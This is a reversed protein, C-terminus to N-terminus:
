HDQHHNGMFIGSGVIQSSSIPVKQIHNLYVGRTSTFWAPILKTTNSNGLEVDYNTLYSRATIVFENLLMLMLYADMLTTWVSQCSRRKCCTIMMQWGCSMFPGTFYSSWTIIIWSSWVEWFRNLYVGRTPTFWAVILKTTNSLSLRQTLMGQGIQTPWASQCMLLVTWPINELYYLKNVVLQGVWCRLKILNRIESLINTVRLLSIIRHLIIKGNLLM